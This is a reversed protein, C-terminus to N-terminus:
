LGSSKLQRHLEWAQALTASQGSSMRETANALAQGLPGRGGMKKLHLYASMLLREEESAGDIIAKMQEVQM